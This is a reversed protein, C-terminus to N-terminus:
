KITSHVSSNYSDALKPIIDIWKQSNQSTFAKFLRGRITRQVRECISAKKDSFTSYLQIDLAFLMKKFTANYFETGRDVQLKKPQEATFLLILAKTLQLGTKRKLPMTWLKKSLTDIVFCCYRYGRNKRSYKQLDLLDAQWLYNIGKTYVKRYFKPKHVTRHLVYSREIQLFQEIEKISVNPYLKKVEVYFRKKGGFSGAFSPDNYLKSLDM